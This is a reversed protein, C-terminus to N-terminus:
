SDDRDEDELSPDSSGTSVDVVFKNLLINRGVLVPYVQRERNALTFRARIKRGKVVVLLRVKYRDESHGNSSVVTTQTFTPFFVKQGTYCESREGWFIVSLGGREEKVYSAWIASTQAGTDVRASINTAGLSPFTVASTHGIIEKPKILRAKM